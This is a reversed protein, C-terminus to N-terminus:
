HEMMQIYNRILSQYSEENDDAQKELRFRWWQYDIWGHLRWFRANLINVKPDGLNVPSGEISWRNHLYNHIGLEPNPDRNTPNGPLPRISTELYRGFDDDSIFRSPSNRIVDIASVKASDFNSQDPVPDDKDSPDTPPTEWGRFYHQLEPFHGLLLILMARHMSLFDIGSGPEGEQLPAREWGQQNAYDLMKKVDARVSPDPHTNALVSWYDFRREFHWKDHHRGWNLSDMWDVIKQPIQKDNM